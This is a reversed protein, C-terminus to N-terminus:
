CRRALVSVSAALRITIRKWPSGATACSNVINEPTTTGASQLRTVEMYSLWGRCSSEADCRRVEVCHFTHRDSTRTEERYRDPWKKLPDRARRLHFQEYIVPSEDHFM